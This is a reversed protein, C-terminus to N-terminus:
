PIEYQAVYHSYWNINGGTTYYHEQQEVDEEANRPQLNKSPWKPRHSTIGWQLKSKCKESSSHHQDGIWTNKQDDTHRRQLFTQKSRGGM